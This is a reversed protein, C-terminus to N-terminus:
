TYRHISFITIDLLGLNFCYNMIIRTEHFGRSSGRQMRRTRRVVKCASSCNECRLVVIFVIHLSSTNVQGRMERPVVVSAMTITIWVFNMHLSGNDDDHNDVHHLNSPFIWDLFTFHVSFALESSAKRM